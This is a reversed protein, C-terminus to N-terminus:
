GAPRAYRKARDWPLLEGKKGEVAKVMALVENYLGRVIPLSAGYKKEISKRQREWDFSNAVASSQPILTKVVPHFASIDDILRQHSAKNQCLNALAAYRRQQKPIEQLARPNPADEIMRGIRDVAFLSVYDPRFPVIVKDAAAIAAEMAFSVGPPCDVIILDFNFGAQDIRKNIRGKITEGIRALDSGTAGSLEHLLDREYNEMELSGPILSLSPLYGEEDLLDGSQQYIYKEADTRDSSFRGFLYDAATREEIRAQAWKNGGMLILSSNAQSDLDVLLVRYRGWISFSHALMTAITSKGVGGKRNAVALKVTM